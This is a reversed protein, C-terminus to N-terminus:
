RQFTYIKGCGVCRYRYITGGGQTVPISFTMTLRAQNSGCGHRCSMHILPQEKPIVPKNQKEPM